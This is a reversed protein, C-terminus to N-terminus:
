IRLYWTDGFQQLPSGQYNVSLKPSLSFATKYLLRFTFGCRLEAEREYYNIETGPAYPDTWLLPDLLTVYPEFKWIQQIFINAM